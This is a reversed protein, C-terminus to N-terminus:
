IYIYLHRYKNQKPARGKRSCRNIVFRRLACTNMYRYIDIYRHNCKNTISTNMYRYIDIYRHNCKNTISPKNLLIYKFIYICIYMHIDIHTYVYIYIHIYIYTHTHSHTHTYIYICIYRPYGSAEPGGLGKVTGGSSVMSGCSLREVSSRSRPPNPERSWCVSVSSAVALSAASVAARSRCCTYKSICM